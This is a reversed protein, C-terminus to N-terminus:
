HHFKYCVMERIRLLNLQTKVILILATRKTTIITLTVSSILSGKLCIINKYNRLLKIIRKSYLISLCNCLCVFYYIVM